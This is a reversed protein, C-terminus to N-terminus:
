PASGSSPPRGQAAERGRARRPTVVTLILWSLIGLPYAFYGFRADPALLFMVALGIALRVSAKQVDRPPHLILSAAIALAAGGLLVIAALHGLSGADALLHGPLPSAAPTLRRSLGLPYAVVNQWLTNPQALLAPATVAILVLFSGLSGGAFRAAAHRGDRVAVLAVVVPLAPWATAKLACAAGIAAGSLLLHDRRWTVRPQRHWTAEEHSTSGAPAPRTGPNRAAWALGLCVLAIVPPDTVGLSMPLAFVPCSLLLLARLLAQCRCHNCRLAAGPPAIRCAAALLAVTAVGLWLLPDGLPGPLGLAHPLGFLSMGPLYPDYSRWSLLQKSALYPTGHALGLAAARAVVRVESTAGGNGPLIAAPVAIAGALAVLLSVIPHKRWSWAAVAAAAGYGGAAWAGWVSEAGHAALAFVAAYTAFIAFLAVALPLEVGVRHDEDAGSASRPTGGLGADGQAFAVGTQPAPRAIRGLRLGKSQRKAVASPGRVRRPGLSVFRPREERWGEASRGGYAAGDIM